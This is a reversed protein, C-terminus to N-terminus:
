KIKQATLNWTFYRSLLTHEMKDVRNYFAVFRIVMRDDHDHTTPCDDGVM